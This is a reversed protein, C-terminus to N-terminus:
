RSSPDTEFQRQIQRWLAVVKASIASVTTDRLSHAPLESAKVFMLSKESDIDGPQLADVIEAETPVPRLGQPLRPARAVQDLVPNAVIAIFGALAICSSWM